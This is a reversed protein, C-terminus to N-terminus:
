SAHRRAQLARPFDVYPHLSNPLEQSEPNEGLELILSTLVRFNRVLHVPWTIVHYSVLERVEESRSPGPLPSLFM